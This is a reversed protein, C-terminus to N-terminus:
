SSSALATLLQDDGAEPDGSRGEAVEDEDDDAAPDYVEYGTADDYYYSRKPPTDVTKEQIADPM